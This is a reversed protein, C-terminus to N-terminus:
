CVHKKNAQTEEFTKTDFWYDLTSQCGDFRSLTTQHKDIKEIKVRSFIEGNDEVYREKKLETIYRVNQLKTKMNLRRQMM